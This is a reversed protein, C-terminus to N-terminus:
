FASIGGAGTWGEAAYAATPELPASFGTWGQWLESTFRRDLIEGLSYESYQSLDGSPERLFPVAAFRQQSLMQASQADSMAIPLVFGCRAASLDLVAASHNTVTIQEELANPDSTVSFRHEIGIGSETRGKLVIIEPGRHIERFLPNGFSYSYAGTALVLGSPVHALHCELGRGARISLQLERGSLTAASSGTGSGAATAFSVPLGAVAFPAAALKVVDRRKMVLEGCETVDPIMPQCSPPILALHRLHPSECADLRRVGNEALPGAPIGSARHEVPDVDLAGGDKAKM